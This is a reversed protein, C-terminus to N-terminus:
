GAKGSRQRTPRKSSPAAAPSGNGEPTEGSAEARLHEPPLMMALLGNIATLVAAGSTEPGFMGVYVEEDEVRAGAERLVSAYAMALKAMPATGRESYRRLEVLTIVDEVRAIAAMVRGAPLTYERGAWSLRIDDFRSM